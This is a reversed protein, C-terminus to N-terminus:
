FYAKARKILAATSADHEHQSKGIMDEDIHRGLVKGLEVGYQDFPNINWIAAQVFVKHEYLAILAGLARADCQEILLTNSPRNGTFTLHPILESRNGAIKATEEHSRGKMLAESQAFCNALLIRHHNKLQHHPQLVAIFDVPILTPGQHVMQYFAHQGNTGPEGWIVAATDHQTPSGTLSATKGNSEMELQQLYAPLHELVAAYPAILLSQAKFFQRYWIGILALLVPLNNALHATQFHDDMLRAGELLEAFQEYGNQLMISLGVASWLSYRGGVWDWMQYINELAIGFKKAENVNASIGIFHQKLQEHPCGADLVWQRLTQANTMTEQTTFTKSVVLVLTEEPNLQQQINDAEAGDVNAVFHISLAQEARNAYPALARCVMKPGLDSGGIGVNVIHRIKKGSFGLWEGNRVAQSLSKMKRLENEVENMLPKLNPNIDPQTSLHSHTNDEKLAAVASATRLLMHLAPRQETINVKEGAFLAQRKATVQKEEALKLLLHITQEDLRNKSFDLTIGAASHTMKQVRQTDKDFWNMMKKQSIHAYHEALQAWVIDHQDTKSPKNSTDSSFTM